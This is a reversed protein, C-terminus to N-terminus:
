NDVPGLESSFYAVAHDLFNAIGQSNPGCLISGGTKVLDRLRRELKAGDAGSEAFGSSYVTFAGVGFAQCAAVVSCVAQAPVAQIAMDPVEPLADIAPYCPLGDIERHRPNVPFIAGKFGYRKLYAIPRGGVRGLDPTAGIIAVSGPNLLKGLDSLAKM